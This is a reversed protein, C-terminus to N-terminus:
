ARRKQLYELAIRATQKDSPTDFFGAPLMKQGEETLYQPYNQFLWAVFTMYVMESNVVKDGELIRLCQIAEMIHFKTLELNFELETKGSKLDRDAHKFFNAAERVKDTWIKRGEDKIFITNYHLMINHKWAEDAPIHDHLIALAACTLTHTSVVDEDEFFLKIATKLQAKAADLKKVTVAVDTKTNTM